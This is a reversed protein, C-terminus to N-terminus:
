SCLVGDHEESSLFLPTAPVGWLGPWGEGFGGQLQLMHPIPAPCTLPGLVLVSWWQEQPLAM